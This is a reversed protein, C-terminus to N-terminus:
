PREVHLAQAKIMTNALPDQFRRRLSINWRTQWKQQPRVQVGIDGHLNCTSGHRYTQQHVTEFICSLLLAALL